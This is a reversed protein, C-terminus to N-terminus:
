FKYHKRLALIGGAVERGIAAGALGAGIGLLVVPAATLGLAAASVSATGALLISGMGGCATRLTASHYPDHAAKDYKAAEIVKLSEVGTQVLPIGRRLGDLMGQIKIREITRGMGRIYTAARGSLREKRLTLTSEVGSFVEALYGADKLPQSAGFERAVPEAEGCAEQAQETAFSGSQCARTIHVSM